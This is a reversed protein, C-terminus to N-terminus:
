LRVCSIGANNSVSKKKEVDRESSDSNAKEKLTEKVDSTLQGLREFAEKLQTRTEVAEKEIRSHLNENTERLQTAMAEQLGRYPNVNDSELGVIHQFKSEVQEQRLDNFAGELALFVSEVDNRFGQVLDKVTEVESKTRKLEEITRCEGQIIEKTKNGIDMLARKEDIFLCVSYWGPVNEHVAQNKFFIYVYVHWSYFPVGNGDLLVSKTQNEAGGFRNM